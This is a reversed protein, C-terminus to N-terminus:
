RNLKAMYRDYATQIIELAKNYGNKKANEMVADYTSIDKNGLIIDIIAVELEDQVVELLDTKERAEDETYTLVPLVHERAVDVNANWVKMADKQNDLPYYGALYDPHQNLGPHNAPLMHKYLAESITQVGSNEPIMIKDTYVFHKEGDIEEITYTDGEVGFNRLTSGEESYLFDCWEVATEIGPCEPSIGIALATAEGSIGNYKAVGGKEPAPFPCAVLTFNPDNLKGATELESLTSIYGWAAFSTGNSINGNVAAADNTVFGTDLYGLKVWEAMKAVYEKYGKEFPGFVVKGDNVYFSKGVDFGTSFTYNAFLNSFVGDQATFPEKFGEEKAKALVATWEDITEPIEMGWEELKDGRAYVGQFVRTTGISLSNFGYYNGEDTTGQLKYLYDHEKGKEGEMYDYYNPAHKELYDNLCVVVEDDIAKQSGGSYSAWNYEIMDPRDPSSLMTMFAESGTSGQIPHIFDIHVGTAKEMEQYFLLDNYNSINAKMVNNDLVTWYTFNNVENETKVAEEKKGCGAFSSCILTAAAAIALIKSFKNM